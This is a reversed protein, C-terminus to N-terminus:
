KEDNKELEYQEMEIDTDTKARTWMKDFEAQLETIEEGGKTIKSEKLTNLMTKDGIIEKVQQAYNATLKEKYMRLKEEDFKKAQTQLSLNQFGDYERLAEYVDKDKERVQLWFPNYLNKQESILQNADKRKEKIAKLIDDVEKGIDFFTKNKYADSFRLAINQIVDDLARIDRQKESDTLIDDKMIGYKLDRTESLINRFTNLNTENAIYFKYLRDTEPNSLYKSLKDEEGSITYRNVKKNVGAIKDLTQYFDQVYGGRTGIPRETLVAKFLPMRSLKTFADEPKEELVGVMQLFEDVINVAGIGAGGFYSKIYHDMKLPSIGITEGIKKFIEPTSEFYQQSPKLDKYAEPIISRGTYGKKNAWIEVQPRIPFPILESVNGLPSFEQFLQDPLEKLIRPDDKVTYDLFSEISSGFIVGFLGKPVPFFHDTGPIRINWLGVRRWTPLSQYLEKDDDDYNNLLWNLIAPATIALGKLLFKAPNNKMANVSMRTHQMRANLFPFLPSIQRMSAGHIGYDASIDRAEAMAKYVDGTKKYANKFAGIRTGMESARSFDQLALLPNRKYSDWKRRLGKGVKENAYDKSLIMDSAVLFSQDAGSAMWKQFMDDKKIMSAIGRIFDTPNYGYQSYFWASTQDRPINRMPFTPDYVIAGAQLWRSPISLVRTIENVKTENQYLVDYYEPAVEYYTPKGNEWTTIIKGKPAKNTLALRVEQTKIDFYPRIDKAPIKQILGLARGQKLNYKQIDQLADVMNKNTYNREAANLIDYTNRVMSEFPSILQRKSGKRSKVPSASSALTEKSLKPVRGNIEYEEFIRKFPVYYRNLKKIEALTEKSLKGSEAYFDLLADSYAQLKRQFEQLEDKGYQQEFLRVTEKALDEKELAFEPHGTAHSEVDRLAILYDEYGKYKDTGIIPKLISLLGEVDKNITINNGKKSYPHYMLWQHARGDIGMMAKLSLFPDKSSEAKGQLADRWVKALNEAYKLNNILSYVIKDKSLKTIGAIFGNDEKERSVHGEYILRPDQQKYLDYSKRAQIIANRVSEANDLLKEFWAYLSPTQSIVSPPDVIYNYVFEAIGEARKREKIPYNIAKLFADLEKNIANRQLVGSVVEDGYKAKLIRLENDRKVPDTIRNATVVDKYKNVNIIGRMNFLHHDLYHGLEHTLVRLDSNSGIRIISNDLFYLGLAKRSFKKVKGIRVQAGEKFGMNTILDRAISRLSLANNLDSAEFNPDEKANLPLPTDFTLEDKNDTRPAANLADFESERLAQKIKNHDAFTLKGLSYDESVEDIETYVKDGYQVGEETVKIEGEKIPKVKAPKVEEEKVKLQDSKSKQPTEKEKEIPETAKAPTPEKAITARTWHTGFNNFGAQEAMTNFEGKDLSALETRMMDKAEEHVEELLSEIVQQKNYISPEIKERQEAELRDTESRFLRIREQTGTVLEPAEQESPESVESTVREADEKGGIEQKPELDLIDQPVKLNASEIIVRADNVTMRGQQIAEQYLGNEIAYEIRDRDGKGIANDQYKPFKIQDIPVGHTVNYKKGRKTEPRDVMATGDSMTGRYNGEVEEGNLMFSVRDGVKRKEVWEVPLMFEEKEEGLLDTEQNLISKPEVIEEKKQETPQLEQVPEVEAKEETTPEEVKAPEVKEPKMEEKILDELATTKEKPEAKKEGEKTKAKKAEKDAKEKELRKILEDKITQIQGKIGEVTKTLAKVEQESLKGSDIKDQLENWVSYLNAVQDRQEPTLQKALAYNEAMIEDAEVRLDKINRKLAEKVPDSDTQEIQNILVEQQKFNEQVTEVNKDSAMARGLVSAGFQLAGGGLGFGAGGITIADLVGAFVSRDPDEGTLIATINQGIQTIGESSGEIGVSEAIGKAIDLANQPKLTGKMGAKFAKGILGFIYASALEGFAELGGYMWSNLIRKNEVMGETEAYQQAASTATITSWVALPGAPATVAVQALMPISSIIGRGLQELAVSLDREGDKGKTINTWINGDLQSITKEIEAAKKTLPKQFESYNQWPMNLEQQAIVANITQDIQEDPVGLLRALPRLIPKAISTNIHHPTALIGGASKLGGVELTRFLDIAVKNRPKEVDKFKEIYEPTQSLLTSPTELETGIPKTVEKRIEAEKLETATLPRMINNGRTWKSVVDSVDTLEIKGTPQELPKLFSPLQPQETSSVPANEAGTSLDESITEVKKKVPQATPFDKLFLERENVPIDFTDQGVTYSEIEVASPYDKLFLEVDKDSIDFINEGVKYTRDAM